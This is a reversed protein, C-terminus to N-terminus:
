FVKEIYCFSDLNNDFYSPIRGKTEKSISKFVNGDITGHVFRQRIGILIEITAEYQERFHRRIEKRQQHRDMKSEMSTQKENNIDVSDNPQENKRKKVNEDNEM